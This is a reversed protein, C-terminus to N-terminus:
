TNMNRTTCLNSYWQDSGEFLAHRQTLQCTCHTHCTCQSASQAPGQSYRWMHLVQTVLGSLIETACSSCRQMASHLQSCRDVGLDLLLALLHSSSTTNSTGTCSSARTSGALRHVRIWSRRAGPKQRSEEATSSGAPISHVCRGGPGRCAGGAVAKGSGGRGDQSPQGCEAWCPQGSAPPFVNCPSSRM